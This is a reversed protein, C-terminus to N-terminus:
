YCEGQFKQMCVTLLRRPHVGSAVLSVTLPHTSEIIHCFSAYEHHLHLLLLPARPHSLLRTLYVMPIGSLLHIELLFSGEGSTTTYAKLELIESNQVLRTQTDLHTGPWSPICLSPRLFLLFFLFITVERLVIM